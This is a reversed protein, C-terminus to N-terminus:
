LPKAIRKGMRYKEVESYHETIDKTIEERLKENKNYNDNITNAYQWLAEVSKSNSSQFEENIKKLRQTIKFHCFRYYRM